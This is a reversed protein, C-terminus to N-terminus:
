TDSKFVHYNNISWNIETITIKIITATPIALLMGVLGALEAGIMIIFLIYLPHFGSSKSFILPQLIVNDVIQAVMIAGIAYPVLSFDGTEFIAIIISLIYGIVPGFYPITNAVGVAAGVVLANKLGISSLLLWSIIGVLTSQILVGKFYLILRTEIKNLITLTTEFFPNPVLELVQRRLKSGDKLFFFTAFPIILAATFINAFIGFLNTVTDQFNGLDFTRNFLNNVVEVIQGEAIFPIRYVLENEVQLAITNITETNLQSALLIVQNGITPALTTSAWIILLIFSAVVLAVANTRRFGAVQMRNVVPDFLYSFVLAVLVYAVLTSFRYLLLATIVIAIVTLLLKFFRELTFKKM